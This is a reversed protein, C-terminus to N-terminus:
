VIRDKGTSGASSRFTYDQTWVARRLKLSGGGVAEKVARDRLKVPLESKVHGFCFEPSGRGM